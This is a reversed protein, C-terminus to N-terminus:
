RTVGARHISLGDGQGDLLEVATHTTNPEASVIELARALEPKWELVDANPDCANDIACLGAYIVRQWATGFNRGASTFHSRLRDIIADDSIEFDNGDGDYEINEEVATALWHLVDLVTDRDERTPMAQKLQITQAM